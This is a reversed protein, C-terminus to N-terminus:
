GKIAEPNSMIANCNPCIDTAVDECKGCCTCQKRGYAREVWEGHKVTPEPMPPLPIWHTPNIILIGYRFVAKETDYVAHNLM